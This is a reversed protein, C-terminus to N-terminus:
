SPGILYPNSVGVEPAESCVYSWAVAESSATRVQHSKADAARLTGRWDPEFEDAYVERTVPSIVRNLPAKGIDYFSTENKQPFPGSNGSSLFSGTVPRQTMIAVSRARRGLSKIRCVTTKFPPNQGKQGPLSALVGGSIRANRWPCPSRSLGPQDTRTTGFLYGASPISPFRSRRASPIYSRMFPMPACSTIM